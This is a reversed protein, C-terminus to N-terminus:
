VKFLHVVSFKQIVFLWYRNRIFPFYIILYFRELMFDETKEFSFNSFFVEWAIKLILVSYLCIKRFRAM